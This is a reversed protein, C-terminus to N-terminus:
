FRQAVPEKVVRAVVSRGATGDLRAVSGTSVAPVAEVNHLIGEMRGDSAASLVSTGVRGDHVWRRFRVTGAAPRRRVRSRTVGTVDVWEHRM